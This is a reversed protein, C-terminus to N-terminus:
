DIVFRGVNKFQGAEKISYVNFTGWGCYDSDEENQKHWIYRPRLDMVDGGKLFPTVLNQDVKSDALIIVQVQGFYTYGILAPNLVNLSDIAHCLHQMRYEYYKLEEQKDRFVPAVTEKGFIDLETKKVAQVLGEIDVEVEKEGPLPAPSPPPVMPVYEPYVMRNVTGGISAVVDLDKGNDMSPITCGDVYRTFCVHLFLTDGEIRTSDLWDPYEKEVFDNVMKELLSKEAHQNQCSFLSLVCITFIYFLTHKM